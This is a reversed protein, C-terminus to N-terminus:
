AKSNLISARPVGKPAFLPVYNTTHSGQCYSWNQSHTLASLTTPSHMLIVHYRNLNFRINYWFHLNKFKLTVNNLTMRIPRHITSIGQGNDSIVHNTVTNNQQKFVLPMQQCWSLPQFHQLAHLTYLNSAFHEWFIGMFISFEEFTETEIRQFCNMLFLMYGLKHTEWLCAEQLFHSAHKEM